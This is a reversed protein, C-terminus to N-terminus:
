SRATFPPSVETGWLRAANTENDCMLLRPSPAAALVREGLLSNGRMVVLSGAQDGTLMARRHDRGWSWTNRLWLTPVVHLRAPATGPNRARVAVCPDEPDAKAVDVTVEWWGARDFVGTDLLEYEPDLRSRRRCRPAGCGPPM